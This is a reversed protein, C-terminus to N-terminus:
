RATGGMSLLQAMPQATEARVLATLNAVAWGPETAPDGDGLRLHNGPPPQYRLPLLPGGPTAYDFAVTGYGENMRWDAALADNANNQFGLPEDYMAALADAAEMAIRRVRLRTLMGQFPAGDQGGSRGLTLARPEDGLLLQPALPVVASATTPGGDSVVLTLQTPNPSYVVIVYLWKATLRDFALESIDPRSGPLTCTVKRGPGYALSVVPGSAGRVDLVTQPADSGATPNGATWPAPGPNMWFTVTFALDSANQPFLDAPLPATAVERGGDFYLAMNLLPAFRPLSVTTM